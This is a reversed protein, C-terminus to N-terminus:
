PSRAELGPVSIVRDVASGEMNTKDIQSVPNSMDYISQSM